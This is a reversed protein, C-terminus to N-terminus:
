RWSQRLLLNEGANVYFRSMSSGSVFGATVGDVLGLLNRSNNISLRGLLIAQKDLERQDSVEKMILQM